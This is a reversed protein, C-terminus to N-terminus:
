GHGLARALRAVGERLKGRDAAYCWRLWGEGEPGFARGPALGLGAEAVLRKALAVSDDQGAVRFFAYMAGDAEPLDIEPLSKLADVVLERKAALDARLATIYDDGQTIAVTAARQVFDAVCSTNFEILKALDALLSPPVVLWGVRWGTMSWAKSFSNVGIIRDEPEGLALFSPASALGDRYVLREYVDDALIWIGHRRCHDLVVRQEAADITWGTPNSPSNLLLLRTEPTLAALLRDLDLRWRGGNVSLPVRVVEGGLIRPIEVINPWLPTVAVVRDGPEVLLQNALMLANVGSGTVGIREVAFPKGHLAGLYAAIAQRLGPQGLNPTYFTEGQELSAMAARRIFEPTPQDSEGFWFALVDPRGMAANAVERIQSAPLSQVSTRSM